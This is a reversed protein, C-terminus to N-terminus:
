QKRVSVEGSFLTLTENDKTKIILHANNDIDLVTANITNDDKQYTINEGILNSKERYVKIFDKAKLDKYILGFNDIIKAILKEKIENEPAEKFIAGAIGKLENPFDNNPSYLNIGIGLVSFFGDKLFTSECLIGCVKKDNIFIDNVWKIKTNVKCVEDIANAVAVAAAPTILYISEKDIQPRLLISMYIGSNEPSFFSRSLRGRGNTQTKAIIVTNEPAGELGLEKATDNTSNLCDYELIDCETQLYNKISMKDGFKNYILIM